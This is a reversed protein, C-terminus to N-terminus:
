RQSHLTSASARRIPLRRARCIPWRRHSMKPSLTWGIRWGTMAYAKSVGNVVITREAVGAPRYSFERVTHGYLLREYIEDSM